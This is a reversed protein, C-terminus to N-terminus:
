GKQNTITIFVIDVGWYSDRCHGHVANYAKGTVIGLDLESSKKSYDWCEADFRFYDWRRRLIPNNSKDLDDIVKLFM